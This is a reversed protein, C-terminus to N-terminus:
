KKSFKLWAVAMMIADAVHGIKKKPIHNISYDSDKIWISFNHKAHAKNATYSSSYKDLFFHHTKDPDLNIKNKLSPGVIEVRIVPIITLPNLEPDPSEKDLLSEFNNDLNSYHYLIQSCINRCLDNPGMQYELLITANKIYKDLSKLYAKLRSTIMVSSNEKVKTNPVLNVVDLLIVNMHNNISKNLKTLLTYIKTMDKKDIFEHTDKIINKIDNVNSYPELIAVALTTVGIDFSVIM